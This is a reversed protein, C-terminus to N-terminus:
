RGKEAAWATEGEWAGVPMLQTVGRRAPTQSRPSAAHPAGAEGGEACLCLGGQGPIRWGIRLFLVMLLIGRREVVCWGPFWELPSPATGVQTRPHRQDVWNGGAARWCVVVESCRDGDPPKRPARGLDPSHHSGATRWSPSATHRPAAATASARATGEWPRPARASASLLPPFAPATAACAMLAVPLSLRRFANCLNYHHPALKTIEKKAPTKWSKQAAEHGRNWEAKGCPM